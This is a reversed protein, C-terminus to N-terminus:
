LKSLASTALTKLKTQAESVPLGYVRILLFKPGKRMWLSSFNQVGIFIAEDGLGSIPTKSTKPHSSSKAAAFMKEDQISVTVM